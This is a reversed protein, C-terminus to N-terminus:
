SSVEQTSSVTRAKQESEARLVEWSKGNKGLYVFCDFNFALNSILVNWIGLNSIKMDVPDNQM